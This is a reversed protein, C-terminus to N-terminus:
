YIGLAKLTAPGAIGDPTLGKSQQFEIVAEKVEETFMGDIDGNYFGAKQLAEQLVEIDYGQMGQQQIYKSRQGKKGGYFRQKSKKLYIQRQDFSEDAAEIEESEMKLAEIKKSLEVNNLSSNKDLLEKELIKINEIADEKNGQEYLKIYEEHKKDAEILLAESEIEKNTSKKYLAEDTTTTVSLNQM